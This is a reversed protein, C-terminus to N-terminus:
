RSNPSRYAQGPRIPPPTPLVNNYNEYFQLNTPLYPFLYQPNLSTHHSFNGRYLITHIPPPLSSLALPNDLPHFFSVPPPLPVRRVAHHQNSPKGQMIM